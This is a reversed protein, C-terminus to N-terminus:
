FVADTDKPFSLKENRHAAGPVRGFSILWLTVQLVSSLPVAPGSRLLSVPQLRSLLRYLPLRVCLAGAMGQAMVFTTGCGNFCFLFSTLLCGIGCTRLYGAAAPPVQRDRAFLGAPQSGHASIGPLM